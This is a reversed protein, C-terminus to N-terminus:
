CVCATPRSISRCCHARGSSRCTARWCTGCNRCNMWGPAAFCNALAPFASTRPSSNDMGTSPRACRASSTFSFPGATVGMGSKGSFLRGASMWCFAWLSPAIIPLLLGLMLFSLTFDFVRKFAFYSGIPPPAPRPSEDPQELTELELGLIDGLFDLAMGSERCYEELETWNDADKESKNGSIIVRDVKVGHVQYEAVVRPLEMPAALVPRGGMSRGIVKPNDDLIAVIDTKGLDFTNIMRLYFWALRNAGILIVHQPNVVRPANRMERMERLRTSAVRGIFMLSCLVLFHIIPISRPVHELRTLSFLAFSTLAITALSVQVISYVDRMSVYDSLNKGLHFALLMLLGSSFAIACYVLTDMPYGDFVFSADRLLFAIPAAALVALTDSFNIFRGIKESSTPSHIRM